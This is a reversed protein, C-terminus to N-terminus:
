RQSDYYLDTKSHLQVVNSIRSAMVDHWFELLEQHSDYESVVLIRQVVLVLSGYITPCGYLHTAM